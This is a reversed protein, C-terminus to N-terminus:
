ISKEPFLPWDYVQCRQFLPWEARVDMSHWIYTTVSGWGVGGGGAGAGGCGWWSYKRLLVILVNLGLTGYIPCQCFLVPDVSNANLVPIYIFCPM